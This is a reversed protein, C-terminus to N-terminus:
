SAARATGTPSVPVAVPKTGCKMRLAKKFDAFCMPGQFSQDSFALQVIDERQKGCWCCTGSGISRIEVQM